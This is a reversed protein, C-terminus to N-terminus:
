RQPCERVRSALHLAEARFTPIPALEKIKSVTFSYRTTTNTRVLGQQLQDQDQLTSSQKTATLRQLM